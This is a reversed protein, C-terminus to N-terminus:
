IKEDHEVFEDKTLPSPVGEGKEKTEQWVLEPYVHGLILRDGLQLSCFRSYKNKIFENFNYEHREIVDGTRRDVLVFGM